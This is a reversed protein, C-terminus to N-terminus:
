HINKIRRYDAIATQQLEALDLTRPSDALFKEYDALAHEDQRLGLHGLALYYYGSSPEQNLDLSRSIEEVAKTFNQQELEIRGIMLHSLARAANSPDELACTEADKRADAFRKLRLFYEARLNLYLPEEPQLSLASDLYKEAKALDNLQFIATRAAHYSLPSYDPFMDACIAYHSFAKKLEDKIQELDIVTTKKKRFYKKEKGAGSSKLNKHWVKLWQRAQNEHALGIWYHVPSQSNQALAKALFIQARDFKNQTAFARGKLCWLQERETKYLSPDFDLALAPSEQAFPGTQDLTVACFAQANYLAFTLVIYAFLFTRWRSFSM